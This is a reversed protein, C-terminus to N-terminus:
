AGVLKPLGEGSVNGSVCIAERKSQKFKKFDM